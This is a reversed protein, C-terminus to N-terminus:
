VLPQSEHSRFHSVIRRGRTREQRRVGNALARVLHQRGPQAALKPM